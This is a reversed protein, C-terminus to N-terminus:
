YDQKMISDRTLVLTTTLGERKFTHTLGQILYKGSYKLDVKVNKGKEKSSPIRVKVLQGATLATNGPVVITLQVAQLLSYRGAAYEAAAITDVTSSTGNNPDNMKTENDDTVGLPPQNKITPLIRFKIRTSTAKDLDEPIEFPLRKHITNAKSFIQKYTIERASYNTGEPSNKGSKGTQTTYSRTIDALSVGITSTKFTGMRMNRLHNAKDPYTISEIVYAGNAPPDAGQQVYSYEFLDTENPVGGGMCLLDISKFQFGYRNEFFLFGSQKAKGKGSGKGEVRTVKDCMYNIVDVPRWNPSIFTIKSHHEFNEEKTKKSKSDLYKKCIHRPINDVDKTSKGPGFAKFVNSMENNYMEPSVTHIIYMQGRESKIISGIKHVRLEVKLPTKGSSATFVDILITEGGMLTKNFDTADLITFDCRIFPSDISEYYAFDVCIDRIDYVDGAANELSMKRLEYLRSKRDAM